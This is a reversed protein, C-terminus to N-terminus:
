IVARVTYKSSSIHVKSFMAGTLQTVVATNVGAACQCHQIKSLWNSQGSRVAGEPELANEIHEWIWQLQIMYIYKKKGISSMKFAM